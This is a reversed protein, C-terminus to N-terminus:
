KIYFKGTLRLTDISKATKFIDDEVKEMKTSFEGILNGNIDESVQLIGSTSLYLRGRRNSIDVVSMQIFNFDISNEPINWYNEWDLLTYDLIEYEKISLLKNPIYIGLEIKSPGEQETLSSIEYDLVSGSFSNSRNSLSFVYEFEGTVDEISEADQEFDFFYNVEGEMDIYFDSTILDIEEQEDVQDVSYSDCNALFILSSLLIYSKLSNSMQM